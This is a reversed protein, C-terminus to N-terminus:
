AIGAAVPSSIAGVAGAFRSHPIRAAVRVADAMDDVDCLEPLLAVRLGRARLARLALEGTDPTSMPVEHLAGAHRPDHLGLAWFGGDAAPGLVVDAGALAEDAHLRLEPDLQPSDMGVQLVARGPAAADAHAAVLRQALGAGRQTVVRRAALAARLEGAREAGGPDGTIAVVTHQPAAADLTDLLAAAAVRAAQAPTAPPCLRTKALGPVPAKAVVLLTTTM